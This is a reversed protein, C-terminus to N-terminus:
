RNHEKNEMTEMLKLLRSNFEYTPQTPVYSDIKCQTLNILDHWLGVYVNSESLEQKLKENESEIDAVCCEKSGCISCCM